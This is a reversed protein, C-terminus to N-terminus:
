VAGAAVLELRGAEEEARSHRITILFTLVAVGAAGLAVLKFLSVSGLSPDYIWGYLALLSPNSNTSHQLAVRSDLSDYLGVSAGASSAVFFVFVLIWVPILIRDRRLALRVLPKTGAFDSM